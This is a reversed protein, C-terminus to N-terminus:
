NACESHHQELIQKLLRTAEGPDPAEAIANSVAIRNAGAKLIEHLNDRTIGGIAFAPIPPTEESLNKLLGLGPYEDFTKTASSFVPGVGIYDAGGAIADHIQEVTHTSVGILMDPGVIARVQEVSLEDQGVHVGDAQTLKALDCRDNMVFLTRSDSTLNRLTKGRELLTRDNAQKDRLQIVDAGANILAQVLEVFAAETERCDILVYLLADQLLTRSDVQAVVPEDTTEPKATQFVDKHLSYSQYRLRELRQSLPISVMKGYEELSRLSEQLRSFNSALVDEIKERCYERSGRIETGVDGRTDRAAVRERHPIGALQTTLEHRFAKCSATLGSDDLMFRVYDEIVRVAEMARNAAADLLRILSSPPSPSPSSKQFSIVPEPETIEVTEPQTEEWSERKCHLHVIKEYVATPDLGRGRIWTGAGLPDDALAVALLLHETALEFSSEQFGSLPNTKIKMMMGGAGLVMVTGGPDTSQYIRNLISLVAHDVEVLVKYFRVQVENVFWDITSSERKKGSYPQAFYPVSKQPEVDIPTAIFRDSEELPKPFDRFTPKGGDIPDFRGGQVIEERTRSATVTEPTVGYSGAPFMPAGVPSHLTDELGEYFGFQLRFDGIKLGTEELWQSARCETEEFLACLIAAISIGQPKALQDARQLVRYAGPTLDIRM